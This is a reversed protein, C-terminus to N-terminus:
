IPPPVTKFVISYVEFMRYLSILIYLIAAMLMVASTLSILSIIPPKRLQVLMYSKQGM